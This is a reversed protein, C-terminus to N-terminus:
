SVGPDDRAGCQPRLSLPPLGLGPDHLLVGLQHQGEHCYDAREGEDDVLVSVVPEVMNHLDISVLNSTIIDATGLTLDGM